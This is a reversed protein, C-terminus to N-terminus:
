PRRERDAEHPHIFLEELINLIDTKTENIRVEIQSILAHREESPRLRQTISLEKDLEDWEDIHRHLRTKEKGGAPTWFFTPQYAFGAVNEGEEHVSVDLTISRADRESRRIRLRIEAM